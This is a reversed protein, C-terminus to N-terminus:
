RKEFAKMPCFGICKGCLTCKDKDIVPLSFIDKQTIAGTPCAVIAPCKHNQPCKAKNISLEM